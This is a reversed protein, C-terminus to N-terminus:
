AGEAVSAPNWANIAVVISALPASLRRVSSVPVRGGTTTSHSLEVAILFISRRPTPRIPCLSTNARLLFWTRTVVLSYLTSSLLCQCVTHSVYRSRGDSSDSSQWVAHFPHAQLWQILLAPDRRLRSARLASISRPRVDQRTPNRDNKCVASAADAAFSWDLGSEIMNSSMKM